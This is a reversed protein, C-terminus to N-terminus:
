PIIDDMFRIRTLAPHRRLPAVSGSLRADIRCLWTATLRNQLLLGKIKQFLISTRKHPAIKHKEQAETWEFIYDSQQISTNAQKLRKSIALVCLESSSWVNIRKGNQPPSVRFWSNQDVVEALFVETDSYGNKESYWSFFFEPSFQYFGHGCFQNAPLVHLVIGGIKCMVTVNRFAQGVDFIHEICGFDIITDYKEKLDNPVPLNMDVIINAGEYDSNDISDVHSAGFRNTLLQECYDGRKTYGLKQNAFYDLYNVLRGLMVTNGLMGYKKTAHCLMRFAHADIGMCKEKDQKLRKCFETHRLDIQASVAFLPRPCGNRAHCHGNM